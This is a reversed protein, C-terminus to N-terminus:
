FGRLTSKGQLARPTGLVVAWRIGQRLAEKEAMESHNLFSPVQQSNVKAADEDETPTYILEHTKADEETWEEFDEEGENAYDNNTNQPSINPMQPSDDQNLQELMKELMSRRKQSASPEPQANREKARNITFKIFAIVGYFVLLLLFETM